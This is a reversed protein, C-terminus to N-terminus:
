NSEGALIEPLEVLNKKLVFRVAGAERAEARLVEDDYTTVLCIKADPYNAILERTATIGDTEPMQWDMLVWEPLFERYFTLAQNGDACEYIEDVSDPLYDRLFERFQQNDDVVLVKM